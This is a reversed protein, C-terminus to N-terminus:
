MVENHFSEKWIYNHAENTNFVFIYSLQIREKAQFIFCVFFLAKNNTVKKYNM